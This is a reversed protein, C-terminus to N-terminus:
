AVVGETTDSGPKNTSTPAILVCPTTPTSTKNSGEWTCKTDQRYPSISAARVLKVPGRILSRNWSQCAVQIAYTAPPHRNSKSYHSAIKLPLGKLFIYFLCSQMVTTAKRLNSRNKRMVWLLWMFIAYVFYIVDLKNKCPKHHPIALTHNTIIYAIIMNTINWSKCTTSCSLGVPAM